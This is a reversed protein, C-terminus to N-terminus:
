TQPGANPDEWRPSTQPINDLMTFFTPDHMWRGYKVVGGLVYTDSCYVQHVVGEDTRWTLIQVDDDPAANWEDQTTGHVTSGDSYFLEWAVPTTKFLEAYEDEVEQDLM